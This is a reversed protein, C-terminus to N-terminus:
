RRAWHRRLRRDWEHAVVNVVTVSSLLLLLLAYMTRNDLNNYALAIHRGIGAVSLIFEGAITGITSYTIALKLGTVLHPAAAPLKILLASSWASMHWSRAAKFYVSPIRDIGDLTSVIMAVIGSLVGIAILPSRNLGLLVILVPYFVFTPVAYYGALLPSIVRRLRPTAHLIVGLAFGLIVALVIAVSINELTFQLDANVQGAAILAVLSTLMESPPIMTLGNIIGTRCLLEVIGIFAVIVGVRVAAIRSM